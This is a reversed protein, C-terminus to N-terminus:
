CPLFLLSILVDITFQLSSPFPFLSLPLSPTSLSLLLLSIPLLSILLSPGSASSLFIDPYSHGHPSVDTLSTTVNRQVQPCLAYVSLSVDLVSVSICAPMWMARQRIDSYIILIDM